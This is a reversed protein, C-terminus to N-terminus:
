AIYSFNQEPGVGIYVGGVPRLRRVNEVFYPENSVFNESLTFTGPAESVTEILGWFETHSLSAPLTSPRSCSSSAVVVCCLLLRCGAAARARSAWAQRREFTAM